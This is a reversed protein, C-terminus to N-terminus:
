ILLSCTYNSIHPQTLDFQFLDSAKCITTVLEKFYFNHDSNRQFKQYNFRVIYSLIFITTLIGKFNKNGHCTCSTSRILFLPVISTILIHSLYKRIRQIYDVEKKLNYNKKLM